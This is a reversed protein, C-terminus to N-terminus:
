SRRRSALGSEMTQIDVTLAYTQTQQPRKGANPGYKSTPNKRTRAKVRQRPAAPGLANLVARGIAGALPSAPRPFVGAALTAQDAAAELLVTFSIREMTAGPRTVVADDATRILTQYTALLAYVEQELGPVSRSRLVRGDLMTAKISFYTTEAQWRCHYLDVLEPAPYREADLLSTVLRWPESRTTGDALTVTIWAEIVRVPLLRYGVGARYVATNLTALYSGDPLRQQIVPRHRASSRVLFSAGTDALDHLFDVADFNADALLLMTSDLCGPLRQAYPLGGTSGPGFCAALVARTGCEVIVPLRLLPYGFEITDGIRQPYRWTIQETDPAHLFAGDVAVIRLGRYFSGARGPRAVPGALTEFLRRLPAPGLRRRARAPSSVAPVTLALPGLGATLKSWVARYSCHATEWKASRTAPQRPPPTQSPTFSRTSPNGVLLLRDARLKAHKDM